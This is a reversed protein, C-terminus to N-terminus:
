TELGLLQLVYLGSLAGAFAVLVAAVAHLVKSDRPSRVVALRLETLAAPHDKGGKGMPACGRRRPPPPPPQTWCLVHPARARRVRLRCTLSLYTNHVESGRGVGLARGGALRRAAAVRPPRSWDRRRTPGSTSGM